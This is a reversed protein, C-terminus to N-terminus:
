AGGQDNKKVAVVLQDLYLDQNDPLIKAAIKGILTVPAMLGVWCLLNVPRWRTLTVKYLYANLLQALTSCDAGLKIQQSVSFGHQELLYKLGFSSYRAYDWPQEHEDWVFPVTLILQGGPCLVRNIEALFRAPEFVHELVQSTLVTAFSGDAFPFRSGDYFCEAHQIAEPRPIELGVYHDVAFYRRYPQNGCGVDLLRGGHVGAAAAHIGRLLGSRAIYFPNLLMALWGDSFLQARVFREIAAFM